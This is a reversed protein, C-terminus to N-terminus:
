GDKSGKNLWNAPFEDLEGHKDLEGLKTLAIAARCGCALLQYSIALLGDRM